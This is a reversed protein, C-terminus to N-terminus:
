EEFALGNAEVLDNLDEGYENFIAIGNDIIAAGEQMKADDGTELADAMTVFGEKYANMVEVFKSRLAKVEDTELTIKSLLNLNEEVKPLMTNNISDLVLTEDEFTEWLGAEETIDLYNQNVVAMDENIFKTLEDAVSSGCGTLVSLSMVLALILTIIKKM